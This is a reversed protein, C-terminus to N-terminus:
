GGLIIQGVGQSFQRPKNGPTDEGRKAREEALRMAYREQFTLGDGQQEGEKTSEPEDAMEVGQLRAQFEMNRNDREVLANFTVTLEDLTLCEELDDYNRWQGLMFVEKEM